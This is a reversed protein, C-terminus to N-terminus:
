RIGAATASGFIGCAIGHYWRVMVYAAVRTLILSFGTALAAGTLDLLPILALNLATNLVAAATVIRLVTSQYGTMNLISIPDGFALAGLHGLSLITLAPTAGIFEAGFVFGVIPKAFVTMGTAVATGAVFIIRSAGVSLAELQGLDGSAHLRAFEPSLVANGAVYVFAVLIAGEIAVKYLGVERTGALLGLMVVDIRVLFVHVAGILLFTTGTGLMHSLRPTGARATTTPVPLIRWLMVAAGLLIVMVTALRAGLALSADAKPLYRAAAFVIVLTVLTPLFSGLAQSWAFLSHGRLAYACLDLLALAPLLWLGVSLSRRLATEDPALAPVGAANAVAVIVLSMGVILISARLLLTRPDGRTSDARSAAIDRMVLDPLGLRAVILLLGVIAMVFAYVGYSNVGLWRALFVGLGVATIRDLVNITGVGSALRVFTRLQMLGGLERLEYGRM